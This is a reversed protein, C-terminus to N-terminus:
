FRIGEAYAESMSPLDAEAENRRQRVVILRWLGYIMVAVALVALIVLVIADSDWSGTMAEDGEEASTGEDSDNAGDANASMASASALGSAGSSSTLSSSGSLSDSSLGTSSLSTGSLGSSLSSSGEGDGALSSGGAGGEFYCLALNGEGEEDGLQYNSIVLSVVGADDVQKATSMKVTEIGSPQTGMWFARLTTNQYKLGASIDIDMTGVDGTVIRESGDSFTAVLRMYFYGVVSYSNEKILPSVLSCITKAGSIVLRVSTAQELESSTSTATASVAPSDTEVRIAGYTAYLDASGTVAADFDFLEGSATRWGQFYKGKKTPPTLEITKGTKKEQKAVTANVTSGM